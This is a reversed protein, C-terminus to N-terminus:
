KKNKKWDNILISKGNIKVTLKQKEKWKLKKVFKKPLVIGYSYRSVKTLKM